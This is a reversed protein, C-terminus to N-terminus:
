DKRFAVMLSPEFPKKNIFEKYGLFYQLYANEQIQEVLEEDTFGCKEKIIMAGLAVRVPLAVNGNIGKFNKAYKDEIKDWPIIQTLKVWRNESNLKGGFPLFFDSLLLQENGSRRYM